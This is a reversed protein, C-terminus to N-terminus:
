RDAKPLETGKTGSGSNAAAQSDTLTVEADFVEGDRNVTLTLVDGVSYQDKIEELEEITNVRTGNVHTIIDGPQLGARQAGSFTEVSAIYVGTDAFGYYEKIADTVTSITIGISPRSVYGQNLLQDTIEKAENIPIAFGIGEVSEGSYKVTNIGIVEGYANVLAGGSNGPNIAADTQIFNSDEGEIDLKRNVGSIYGGTFSSSLDLGLPNGLAFARDGVLVADSDGLTAEPLGTAEIKIVAIDTESDTAVLKAEYETGDSLTVTVETANDIVHNNTVIYGDSSIIIGSGSGLAVTQNLFSNAQGKTEIGVISVHVKEYIANGSLEQRDARDAIQQFFLQSQDVGSTIDEPTQSGQATSPSSPDLWDTQYVVLSFGGLCLAATLLSSVICAFWNKKYFRTKKPQPIMLSKPEEDQRTNKQYDDPYWVYNNM